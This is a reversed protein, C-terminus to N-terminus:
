SCCDTRSTVSDTSFPIPSVPDDDGDDVDDGGDSSDEASDESFFSDSAGADLM